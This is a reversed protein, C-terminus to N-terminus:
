SLLFVPASGSMKLLPKGVWSLPSIGGMHEWEFTDITERSTEGEKIRCHFLVLAFLVVAVNLLRLDLLISFSM